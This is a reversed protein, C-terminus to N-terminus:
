LIPKHIDGKTGPASRAPCQSLDLIDRLSTFLGGEYFTWELKHDREQKGEPYM